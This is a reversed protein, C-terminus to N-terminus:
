DPSCFKDRSHTRIVDIARDIAQQCIMIDSRMSKPYDASIDLECARYKNLIRTMVSGRAAAMCVADHGQDGEDKQLGFSFIAALAEDATPGKTLWLALKQSGLQDALQSCYGSPDDRELNGLAMCKPDSKLKRWTELTPKLLGRVKPPVAVPEVQGMASAVMGVVFFAFLTRM